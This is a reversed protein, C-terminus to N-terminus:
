AARLSAPAGALARLHAAIAENVPQAHTLPSMHGAGAIRVVQAHPVAAALLEVIRRSPAPSREGQVLLVPVRLAAYDALGAPEEVLARFDLVVKGIRPTLKLWAERPMTTWAGAGNWYDVFRGMGHRYDGSALAEAIEQAVEAVEAFLARESEGGCRLVHFISPEILTLSRVAWPRVRAIHLAVGGGYSHGVLHVPQAAREILRLIPAAEGALSFARHGPWPDSAGCSWQDPTISRFEGGLHEVLRQWQAGSAASCHLAVLLEGAGNESYSIRLGETEITQMRKGPTTLGPLATDAPPTEV